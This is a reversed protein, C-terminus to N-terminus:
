KLEFKADGILHNILNKFVPKPIEFVLVDNFPSILFSLINSSEEPTILSLPNKVGYGGYILGMM